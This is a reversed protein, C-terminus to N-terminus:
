GEKEMKTATKGKNPAEVVSIRRKVERDFRFTCCGLDLVRENKRYNQVFLSAVACRVNKGQKQTSVIGAERLIRIHKSVNYQSVVLTETIEGVTLPAHLLAGVIRYRTPDALAKLMNVCPNPEM